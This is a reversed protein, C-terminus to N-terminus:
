YTEPIFYVFKGTKWDNYHRMEDFIFNVWQTKVDKFNGVLHKKLYM